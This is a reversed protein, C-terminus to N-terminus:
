RAPTLQRASPGAQATSHGSSDPGRSREMSQVCTRQMSSKACLPSSQAFDAARSQAHIPQSQTDSFQSQASHQSQTDPFHSLRFDSCAGSPGFDVDWDTGISIRSIEGRPCVSSARRSVHKERFVLM